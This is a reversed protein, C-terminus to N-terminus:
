INPKPASTAAHLPQGVSSTATTAEIHVQLNPINFHDKNSSTSWLQVSIRQFVSQTSKLLINSDKLLKMDTNSETWTCEPGPEPGASERRTPFMQVAATFPNRNGTDLKVMNQLHRSLASSSNVVVSSVGCCEQWRLETRVSRTVSSLWSFKRDSSILM